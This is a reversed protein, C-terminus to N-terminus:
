DVIAGIVTGNRTVITGDNRVILGFSQARMIREHERDTERAIRMFTERSKYNRTTVRTRSM